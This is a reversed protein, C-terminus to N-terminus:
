SVSGVRHRSRPTTKKDVLNQMIMATKSAHEVFSPNLKELAPIIAHRVYARSKEMNFNSKDVCFPVHAKECTSELKTKRLGLFPRVIDIEGLQSHRQRVGCLGDVGCGRTLHMLITEAVDDAHHATLIAHRGYNSAHHQLINYRLERAANYINGGYLAPYIDYSYFPLDFMESQHKCVELDSQAEDRLHHNIHVVDASRILKRNIMVRAVGILAASDPGGSCALVIKSEDPFLSKVAHTCLGSRSFTLASNKTNPNVDSV